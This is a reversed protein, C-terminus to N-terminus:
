LNPFFRGNKYSFDFLTGSYDIESSSRLYSEIRHYKLLSLFENGSVGDSYAGSDLSKELWSFTSYLKAATSKGTAQNGMFLTMRNFEIFGSDTQLGKRIPGFDRIRLGPM